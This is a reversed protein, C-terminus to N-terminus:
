RKYKRKRKPKEGYLTKQGLREVGLYHLLALYSDYEYGDDTAIVPAIGELPRPILWTPKEFRIAVSLLTPDRWLEWLRTAAELDKQAEAM